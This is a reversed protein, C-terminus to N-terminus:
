DMPRTRRRRTLHYIGRVYLLDLWKVTITQLLGCTKVRAIFWNCDNSKRLTVRCEYGNVFLSDFKLQEEINSHLRALDTPTVIRALANVIDKHEILMALHRAIYFFRKVFAFLSVYLRDLVGFKFTICIICFVDSSM